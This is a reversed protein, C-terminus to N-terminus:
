TLEAAIADRETDYWDHTGEGSTFNMYLSYEGGMEEARQIAAQEWAFMTWGGLDASDEIHSTIMVKRGGEAALAILDMLSHDDHFNVWQTGNSTDGNAPAQEQDNSITSKIFPAWKSSQDRNGRAPYVEDIRTDFAAWWMVTWAGGSLGTACVKSIAGYTGANALIHSLARYQSEFFLHGASYTDTILGDAFLEEHGATYPHGVEITNDGNPMPDSVPMACLLVDYGLATWYNITALTSAPAESDHGRHQIMLDGNPSSNKIHYIYYSWTWDDDDVVDFRLQTVSAVDTLDGTDIGHMTGSYAASTADATTSAPVGATGLWFFDIITQRQAAANSPTVHFRSPWARYMSRIFEKNIAKIEASTKLDTFALKYIYSATTNTTVSGNANSNGFYLNATNQYDGPTFASIPDFTADDVFVGSLVIGNREVEVTDSDFDGKINVFLLPVENDGIINDVRYLWRQTGNGWSVNLQAAATIFVQFTEDASATRGGMLQIGSAMLGDLTSFPIHIHFNRDVLGNDGSTGMDFYTNGDDRYSKVNNGGAAFVNCKPTNAGTANFNGAQDAFTTITDEDAETLRMADYFVRADALKSAEVTVRITVGTGSLNYVGATEGDYDGENWTIAQGNREQQLIVQLEDFSTNFPVTLDPLAESGSFNKGIYNGIFM